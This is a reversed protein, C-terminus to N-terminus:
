VQARRIYHLASQVDARMLDHANDIQLQGGESKEMGPSVATLIWKDESDKRTQEHALWERATLSDKCYQTRIRYRFTNRKDEAMIPYMSVVDGDYDAGMLGYRIKKDVVDALTKAAPDTIGGLFSDFMHRIPLGFGGGFANLLGLCETLSPKKPGKKSEVYKLADEYSM